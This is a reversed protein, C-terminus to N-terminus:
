LAANWWVPMFAYGSGAKVVHGVGPFGIHMGAIMLKDTTVMDLVKKRTAIAQAPDLDFGISREPEPFQLATSHIIDTWILLQSNGNAIRIMTHGVTHGPATVAVVGPALETGDKFTQVKKADVYPKFVARGDEFLDKFFPKGEPIKVDGELWWAFEDGNIHISAKPYAIQKETTLLGNCHDPHVHTIVVADIDAPNVGAAALNKPLHGAVPGIGNSYGTDVLILKDGTNILWANFSTPAMEKSPAFAAELLKAAGEQDGSYYKTPLAATGDNLITVEYSGVKMRYIGPAQVGAPAEKAAAPSAPLVAAGAAALGFSRRTIDM